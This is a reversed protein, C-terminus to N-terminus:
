ERWGSSFTLPCQPIIIEGSLVRTTTSKSSPISKGGSPTEVVHLLYVGRNERSNPSSNSSSAGNENTLNLFLARSAKNPM